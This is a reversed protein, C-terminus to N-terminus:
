KWVYINSVFSVQVNIKKYCNIHLCLVIMLQKHSLYWKRYKGTNKIPIYFIQQQLLTSFITLNWKVNIYNKGM